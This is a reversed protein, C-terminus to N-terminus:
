AHEAEAAEVAQLFARIRDPSKVGPSSEVGSSTDVGWPRAQRLAEGVNEPTLGGALILKRGPYAEGLAAAAGWHAVHGTGGPRAPDTSSDLHIRPFEEAPPLPPLATTDSPLPVSPVLHHRELFDLGDPISGYVQIRDVGVEDFLAHIRDANPSVVVAWAETGQPVASVLAAARELSLSRPSGPVEVVFGAAGGGPLLAFPDTSTLGCLKVFTKM